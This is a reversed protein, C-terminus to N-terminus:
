KAKRKPKKVEPEDAGDSQIGYQAKEFSNMYPAVDTFFTTQQLHKIFNSTDELEVVKGLSHAFDQVLDNITLGDSLSQLYKGYAAKASKKDLQTMIEKALPYVRDFAKTDQNLLAMYVWIIPSVINQEPNIVLERVEDYKGHISLYPHLGDFIIDQSEFGKIEQLSFASKQPGPVVERFMFHASEDNEDQKVDFSWKGTSSFINFRLQFQQDVLQTFKDYIEHTKKDNSMPSFMRMGAETYDDNVGWETHTSLFQTEPIAKNLKQILTVISRLVPVSVSGNRISYAGYDGSDDLEEDDEAQRQKHDALWKQREEEKAKYHAQLVAEDISFYADIIKNVKEQDAETFEEHFFDEAEERLQEPLFEDIGNSFADLQNMSAKRIKAFPIKIGNSTSFVEEDLDILYDNYDYDRGYHNNINLYLLPAFGCVSARISDDLASRIWDGAESNQADQEVRYIVDQTQRKTLTVEDSDYDGEEQYSSAQELPVKSSATYEDFLKKLIPTSLFKICNINAQGMGGGFYGDYSDSFAIIKNDKKVHTNGYTGM